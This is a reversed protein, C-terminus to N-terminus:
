NSSSTTSVVNIMNTGSVSPANTPPPSEQSFLGLINDPDIDLGGFQLQDQLWNLEVDVGEVHDSFYERNFSSNPPLNSSIASSPISSSCSNVDLIPQHTTTRLLLQSTPAVVSGNTFNNTDGVIGVTSAKSTDGHSSSSSVQKESGTSAIDIGTGLPNPSAVTPTQLGSTSGKNNGNTNNDLRNGSSAAGTTIIMDATLTGGLSSAPSIDSSGTGSPNSDTGL